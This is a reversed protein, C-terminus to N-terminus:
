WGAVWRAQKNLDDRVARDVAAQNLVYQPGLPTEVSVLVSVVDWEGLFSEPFYLDAPGTPLVPLPATCPLEHVDTEVSVLLSGLFTDPFYLNAPGPCQPFKPPSSVAQPCSPSLHVTGPPM